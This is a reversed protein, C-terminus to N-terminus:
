RYHLMYRHMQQSILLLLVAAGLVCSSPEKLASNPCKQEPLMRHHHHHQHQHHHHHRHQQYHGHVFAFRPTRMNESISLLMYRRTEPFRSAAVLVTKCCGPKLQKIEIMM